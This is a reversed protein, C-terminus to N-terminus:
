PATPDFRTGPPKPVPAPACTGDRCFSSRACAVGSQWRGTSDCTQPTSGSCTPRSVGPTCLAGCRGATVSGTVWEGAAGCTQPAAGSCQVSEPACGRALSARGEDRPPTLATAPGGDLPARASPSVGAAAGQAHREWGVSDKPLSETTCREVWVAAGSATLLGVLGVGVRTAWRRPPAAPGIENGTAFPASTTHVLTRGLRLPPADDRTTRPAMYVPASALVGSAPVLVALLAEQHAGGAAGPRLSAEDVLGLAAGLAQVQDGVRAFRQEPERACSRAFWVNIRPPLWPWRTTPAYLPDSLIQVLLDSVNSASWYSEGTLLQLAILGMAWVDTTPSIKGVQGRAQEPAMYLPTGMIAGTSTVSVHTADSKQESVFKAIGFDLIKLITTGDERRHLFLNGPKLDRHVIGLAHSKDLAGAAQTLYVFLEEPPIRGRTKLLEQFDAGDLLEMVLFPAGQIESAVDADVIRVVHESKIRGSARAERGFRKISDADQAAPGLLLKLALLNGTHLHEVLYVVGMGGRGLERVVCYRSAIILPADDTM